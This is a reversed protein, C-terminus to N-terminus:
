HQALRRLVHKKIRKKAGSIHRSVTSKNLGFREALRPISVGGFYYLTLLEHQRQTLGNELVEATADRLKKRYDNNTAGQRQRYASFSIESAFNDNYDVWFSKKM